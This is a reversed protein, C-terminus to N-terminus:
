FVKQLFILIAALLSVSVNVGRLVRSGGSDNGAPLDAAQMEPQAYERGSDNELLFMRKRYISGGDGM